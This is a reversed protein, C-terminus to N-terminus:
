KVIAWKPLFEGLILVVVTGIVVRVVLEFAAGQNLIPLMQGMVSTFVVGYLVFAVANGVLLTGVVRSPRQLMDGLVRAWIAGRKRELELYLKWGRVFPPYQSPCL